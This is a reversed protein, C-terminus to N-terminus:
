NQKDSIRKLRATFAPGYEWVLIEGELHRRVEIPFGVPRLVHAGDEYTAVVTIETTFDLGVDHVGNAVTGDCRMDHIVGGGTIVIRNGGQEIRQVSGLMPHNIEREGDAEVDTVEWVGRMDPAGDSLADACGKLIPDPFITWGGSPTHAVPIKDIGLM